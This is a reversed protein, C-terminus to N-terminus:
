RSSSCPSPSPSCAMRCRWSGASVRVPRNTVKTVCCGEM